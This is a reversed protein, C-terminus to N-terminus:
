FYIELYIHNLNDIISRDLIRCMQFKSSILFPITTDPNRDIVTVRYQKTIVYNMNNAKIMDPMVESYIICPYEIKFGAPPQFYINKRSEAPLAEVLIDRFTKRNRVM